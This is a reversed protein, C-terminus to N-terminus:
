SAGQPRWFLCPILPVAHEAKTERLSTPLCTQFALSSPSPLAACLLLHFMSQPKWSRNGTSTLGDNNFSRSCGHADTSRVSYTHVPRRTTDHRQSELALTCPDTWMEVSLRPCSPRKQRHLDNGANTVWSPARLCSVSSSKSKHLSERSSFLTGSPIESGKSITASGKLVVSSGTLLPQESIRTAGPCFDSTQASWFHM